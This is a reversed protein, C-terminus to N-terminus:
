KTKGPPLVQCRDLEFCRERIGPHLPPVIGGNKDLAEALMADLDWALYARLHRLAYDSKMDPPISDDARDGERGGERKSERSRAHKERM